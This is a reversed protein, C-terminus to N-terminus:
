TQSGKRGLCDVTETRICGVSACHRFKILRFVPGREIRQDRMHRVDNGGSARALKTRQSFREGRLKPRARKSEHYRRGIDYAIEGACPQVGNRQAYWLMRNSM